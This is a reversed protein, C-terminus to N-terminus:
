IGGTATLVVDADTLRTMEEFLMTLMGPTVEAALIVKVGYEAVPPAPFM